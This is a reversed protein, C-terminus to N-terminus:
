QKKILRYVKEFGDELFQEYTIDSKIELYEKKESVLKLLGSLMGWIQFIMVFHSEQVELEQKETGQKLYESIATNIEEGVIYAQKLFSSEEEDFDVSIYSLSKDFYEPFEKQYDHLAWCMALFKKKSDGSVNLADILMNKLIRMSNLALFSVIEEKNEFYVYLTAKSYGAAKAIEDMTTNQIGKKAFLAEAERAIRNQHVIPEEKKRRAM